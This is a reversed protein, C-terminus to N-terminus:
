PTLELGLTQALADSAAYHRTAQAVVEDIATFPDSAHTAELRERELSCYATFGKPSVVVNLHTLWYRKRLEGEADTIREILESM